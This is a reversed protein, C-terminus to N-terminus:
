TSSRYKRIPRVEPMAFGIRLLSRFASRCLPSWLRAIDYESSSTAPNTIKRATEAPSFQSIWSILGKILKGFLNKGGLEDIDVTVTDSDGFLVDTDIKKIIFEDRYSVEFDERTTLRYDKGNKELLLSYFHPKQGLVTFSFTNRIRELAASLGRMREPLLLGLTVMCTTIVLLILLVIWIKAAKKGKVPKAPKGSAYEM